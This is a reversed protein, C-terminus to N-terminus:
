KLKFQVGVQNFIFGDNWNLSKGFHAWGDLRDSMSYHWQTRFYLWANESLVYNVGAGVPFNFDVNASSNNTKSWTDGIGASVEPILQGQDNFRRVFVLSMDVLSTEFSTYLGYYDIVGHNVAVRVGWHDVPNSTFNLGVSPHVGGLTFTENAYDGNYAVWGIGAGASYRGTQAYFFDAVM